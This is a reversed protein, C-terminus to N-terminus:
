YHIFSSLLSYTVALDCLCIGIYLIAPSNSLRRLLQILVETDLATKRSWTLGTSLIRSGSDYTAM